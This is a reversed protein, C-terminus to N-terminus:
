HSLTDGPLDKFGLDQTFRLLYGDPDLVLFERNGTLKDNVRYWNEKPLVFIPYSNNSLRNLLLSIDEVEFQFNIGRGFPYSLEGGTNWTDNIQEIMIQSGGFSLFMFKCEDRKYEVKFGLLDVYFGASKEISTVSIEPILKNYKIPMKNTKFKLNM